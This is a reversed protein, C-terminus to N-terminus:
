FRKFVADPFDAKWGVGKIMFIKVAQADVPGAARAIANRGIGPPHDLVRLGQNEIGLDPPRIGGIAPAAPIKLARHQRRQNIFDMDAHGLFFTFDTGILFKAVVNQGPYHSGTVIGQLEHGDRLM